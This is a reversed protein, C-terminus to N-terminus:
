IILKAILHQQIYVIASYPNIYLGKIKNIEVIEKNIKKFPILWQRVEKPIGQTMVHRMMDLYQQM